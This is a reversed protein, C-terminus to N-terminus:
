AMKTQRAVGSLNVGGALCELLCQLVLFRDSDLVADRRSGFFDSNGQKTLKEGDFDLPLHRMVPKRVNGLVM